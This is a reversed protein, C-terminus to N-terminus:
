PSIVCYFYSYLLLCAWNDEYYINFGKWRGLPPVLVTGQGFYRCHSWPSMGGMGGGEMQTVRVGSSVFKKQRDPDDYITNAIVLTGVNASSFM